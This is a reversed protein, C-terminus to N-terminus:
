PKEPAMTTRRLAELTEPVFDDGPEESTDGGRQSAKFLSTGPVYLFNVLISPRLPRFQSYCESILM